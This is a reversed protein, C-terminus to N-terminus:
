RMRASIGPLNLANGAFADAIYAGSSFPLLSSILSDISSQHRKPYVLLRRRSHIGVGDEDEASAFINIDYDNM